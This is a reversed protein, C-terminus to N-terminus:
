GAQGTREQWVDNLFYCPYLRHRARLPSARAVGPSPVFRPSNAASSRSSMPRTTTARFSFSVHKKARRVVTGVIWCRAGARGPGPGLPARRGPTRRGVSAWVIVTGLAGPTRDLRTDTIVSAMAYARSTHTSPLNGRRPTAATKNAAPNNPIVAGARACVGATGSATVPSRFIM